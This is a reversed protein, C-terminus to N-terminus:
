RGGLLGEIFVTGATSAVGSEKVSIKMLDKYNIDIGFTVKVNAANTGVFTFERATLTSTGGSTSDNMLQYFNTDDPSWELKIQISNSTEGGGMTYSVAFEVRSMGGVDFTKGNDAYDSTLTAETLTSGSRSGILPISIQNPYFLGGGM